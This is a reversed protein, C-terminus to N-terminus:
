AWADYRGDDDPYDDIDPDDPDALMDDITAAWEEDSDLSFEPADFVPEYYKSIEDHYETLRGEQHAIVTEALLRKSGFRAGELAISDVYDLDRDILHDHMMKWLKEACEASDYIVGRSYAAFAKEYSQEFGYSGDYYMDGLQEWASVDCLEAAQSFLSHILEHSSQMMNYRLKHREIGDEKNYLAKYTDYCRMERAADLFFAGSSLRQLGQQMYHDYEKTMVLADIEDGYGSGVILDTYAALIGAELAKRYDDMVRTRGVRREKATARYYYWYGNVAIGAAEDQAIYQDALEVAKEVQAERYHKGFCLEQLQYKKALESGMSLAKTLLADAKEWDVTGIDGYEYVMALGAIADPLGQDAAAQMNRYSIWLSEEGGRVISQWRAYAYQAYRNGKEAEQILPDITSDFDLLRVPGKEMFLRLFALEAQKDTALVPLTASVIQDYQGDYLMQLYNM